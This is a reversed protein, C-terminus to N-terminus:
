IYLYRVFWGSVVCWMEWLRWIWLGCFGRLWWVRRRRCFVGLGGISWGFRARCTPARGCRRTGGRLWLRCPTEGLHGRHEGGRALRTSCGVGPRHRSPRVRPCGAAPTPPCAAGPVPSLRTLSLCRGFHPALGTPGPLPFSGRLSPTRTPSSVDPPHTKKKEPSGYGSFPFFGVLMVYLLHVM